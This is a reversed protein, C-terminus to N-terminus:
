DIRLAECPSMSSARVAPILAALFGTLVLVSTAITEVTAAHPDGGFTQSALIGTVAFTVPVGLAIGIVILALPGRLLLAIAQHREAGLAMRVGIENTRQGASYATIGYLGICSLVIALLGFFSTLRAMLETPRFVAEVQERFTRIWTVPLNPDVSALTRRIVGYSIPKGPREVIVINQMYHSGPSREKGTAKDMDHQAEPLFFFPTIPKDLDIALYRADKAIGVIRYRTPSDNAWGFHKGIPDQDPFFKRAFTENVVATHEANESDREDLERGRVIPTGISSLFNPTARTWSSETDENPGPTSHGDIWVPSGWNNGSLPTYVALTVQAVGPIRAFADEIRGYLPHLQTAEYGALRPDFSVIIRHDTRFGFDQHEFSRLGMTLLGSACVLILALASQLAVLMRRPMSGTRVTSRQIGRLAEIPAVRTAVWAPAIGFAIGTLLSMGFAFGLIPLSPTSDIPVGAMGGVRPFVFDVIFRIGAVAIALGLAGGCLSLLVSETFAQRMLAAPRAGLAVSVATQRRAQMSRVLMLNAVNACVILLVFGSVLMLTRLWKEYAERMATIGAGGPVVYVTQRPFLTRENADMEGWHSRLWQRLEVRMRAQISDATYGPRKRGILQLWALSPNARDSNPGPDGTTLPVFFDPPHTRLSDGFFAPPAIGVITFPKSNLEFLSGVVSPDSGYRGSWLRYSMVAVPSADATDDAPTLLRGAFPRLKFMQFYNGSVLEGMDSFAPAPSASRRVGYGIGSAQFAALESFGDTHDRFYKYLDYSVIGFEPDQAYGNTYCCQATRGLRLLEAPDAVSLSKLLVAYVLSFIATTAGMGLAVTLITTVSFVPARRLRRTAHRFDHFLTELVPLGRDDRYTERLAELSGFKLVAQRRAEAPDLGARINEATQQALHEEIESELRRTGCDRTLSAWFKSVLRRVTRV